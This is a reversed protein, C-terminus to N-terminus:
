VAPSLRATALSLSISISFTFFAPEYCGAITEKSDTMACDWQHVTAYHLLNQSKSPMTRKKAGRKMPLHAGAYMFGPGADEITRVM